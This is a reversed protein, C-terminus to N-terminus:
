VAFRWQILMEDDKLTVQKILQRVIVKQKEYDLRLISGKLSKLIGLAEGKELEPKKTEDKALKEEIARKENQITEKRENLVDLPLTEDLYLNVLKELKRDLEEMRKILPTEDIAPATAYNKMLAPDLRLKEVEQLVASELEEKRYDCSICHDAKAM